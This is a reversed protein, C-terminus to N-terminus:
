VNNFCICLLGAVNSLFLFSTNEMNEKLIIKTVHMEGTWSDIADM